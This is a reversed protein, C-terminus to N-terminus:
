SMTGTPPRGDAPISPNPKSKIAAITAPGALGDVVLGHSRQFEEVADTTAPGYAGDAALGASDLSNLALQLAEVSDTTATHPLVSDPLVPPAVQPVFFGLDANPDRQINGDYDMRLAHLPNTPSALTQQLDWDGKNLDARTDTFGMSETPWRVNIIGQPYMADYTHGAGYCARNTTKVKAFFAEFAQVVPDLNTPSDEDSTYGMFGNPPMGLQQARTAAYGGDSFGTPAGRPRGNTEYVLGIRFRFGPRNAAAICRAETDSIVKWLNAQGPAIYRIAVVDKDIALLRSIFPVVSGATDFILM